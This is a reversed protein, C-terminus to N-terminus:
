IKKMGKVYKIIKNLDKFEEVGIGNIALLVDGITWILNTLKM